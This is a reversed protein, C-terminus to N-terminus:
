LETFDDQFSCAHGKTWCTDCAICGRITKDAANYKTVLHGKLLAGNIFADAM